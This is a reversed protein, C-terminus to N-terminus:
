PLIFRQQADRSSAIFIRSWMKKETTASKKIAANCAWAVGGALGGAVVISGASNDL